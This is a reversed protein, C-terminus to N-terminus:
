GAALRRRMRQAAAALTSAPRSRPATSAHLLQTRVTSAAELPPAVMAMFAVVPPPLLTKLGTSEALQQQQQQQQAVVLILALQSRPETFAVAEAVAVTVM